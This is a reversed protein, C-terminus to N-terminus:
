SALAYAATQGNRSRKDNCQTRLYWRVHARLVDATMPCRSAAAGVAADTNTRDFVKGNLLYSGYFAIERGMAQDVPSLEEPDSVYRPTLLGLESTLVHLNLGLTAACGNTLHFVRAPTNSLSIGVANGAVADVPIFNIETHADGLIRVPRQSLVDGMRRTVARQFQRTGRIFGYMGTFSTAAHTRSHGIVISPRMIRIHMGQEAGVMLEGRIKSREYSNNGVSEDVPPAEMVRGTRAGAVYATSIHNFVSAGSSRALDLANRTGSVNHLLIEESQEEKFKLSAASHWFEDVRGVGSAGCLPQLIDGEVARCRQSVEGLLGGLGYAHAAETLTRELREQPGEGDGARVVCVVQDDTRALLELVLAGGVFGTAGTVLHVKTM